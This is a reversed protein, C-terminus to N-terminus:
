GRVSCWECRFMLPDILGWYFYEGMWRVNGCQRCPWGVVIRGKWRKHPMAAILAMRAQWAKLGLYALALTRTRRKAWIERVRQRESAASV